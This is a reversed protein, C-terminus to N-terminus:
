SSVNHHWFNEDDFRISPYGFFRFQTEDEKTTTDTGFNFEFNSFAKGEAEDLVRIVEIFDEYTLTQSKKNSEAKPNNRIDEETMGELPRWVGDLCYYLDITDMVVGLDCFGRVGFVV